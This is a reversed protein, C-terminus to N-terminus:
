LTANAEDLERLRNDIQAQIDPVEQLEGVTLRCRALPSTGAREIWAIIAYAEYLTGTHPDRRVYRIPEHTITCTYQSLVPDTAYETPITTRDILLNTALEQQQVARRRTRYNEAFDIFRGIAEATQTVLHGKGIAEGALFFKRATEAGELNAKCEEVDIPKDGIKVRTDGSYDYVPRTANAREEDSMALYQKEQLADQESAMRSFQCVNALMRELYEGTTLNGDRAEQKAAFGDSMMHLVGSGLEIKKWMQQMELSDDGAKSSISAMQAFSLLTKAVMNAKEIKTTPRDSKMFQFLKYLDSGVSITQALTAIVEVSM